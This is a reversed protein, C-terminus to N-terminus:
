KIIRLHGKPKAPEESAAEATVAEQGVDEATLEDADVSPAASVEFAMGQGNERAYIAQVADIPVYLSQAAGGFRAQCSMAENDLVFERTAHPAINLVIQGDRVFARPVKVRESVVVSLYPTFGADVCWDYLARILYPKTSPIDSM